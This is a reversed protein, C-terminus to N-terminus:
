QAAEESTGESKKEVKKKHVYNKGRVLKTVKVLKEEEVPRYYRTNCWSLFTFRPRDDIIDIVFKHGPEKEKKSKKNKKWTGDLIEQYKARGEKKSFVDLTFTIARKTQTSEDQRDLTRSTTLVTIELKKSEEVDVVRAFISLRRGKSDYFKFTALPEKVPGEPKHENM